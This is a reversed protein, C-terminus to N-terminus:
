NWILKWRRREGIWFLYLIVISISFRRSVRCFLHQLLSFFLLKKYSDLSWRRGDRLVLLSFSCMQRAYALPLISSFRAKGISNERRSFHFLFRKICRRREINARGVHTFSFVFDSRLSFQIFKRPFIKQHKRKQPIFQCPRRHAHANILM